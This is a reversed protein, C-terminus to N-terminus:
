IKTVLGELNLEPPLDIEELNIESYKFLVVLPSVLEEDMM